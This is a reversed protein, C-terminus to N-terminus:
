PVAVNLSAMIAHARYNNAGGSTPENYYFYGYQLTGTMNKLLRRTIGALVAHRDYFIGLPLGDAQNQQRYDTRSFSYSARLDTSRSVVFTATALATYTDGRYPVVAAGDNM